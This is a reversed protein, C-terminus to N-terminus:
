KGRKPVSRKPRSKNTRMISAPRMESATPKAPETTAAASPVASPAIAPHLPPHTSRATMPSASVNSATGWLHFHGHADTSLPPLLRLRLVDGIALPDTTAFAPTIICAVALTVLAAVGAAAFRDRRWLESM